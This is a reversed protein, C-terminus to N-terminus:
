AGSGKQPTSSDFPPVEVRYGYFDGGHMTVFEYEQTSQAEARTVSVEYASRDGDELKRWGTRAAEPHVSAELEELQAALLMAFRLSVVQLEGGGETAYRKQGSPFAAQLVKETHMGMRSEERDEEYGANALDECRIGGSM